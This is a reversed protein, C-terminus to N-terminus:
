GFIFKEAKERFRTAEAVFEEAAQVLRRANSTNFEIQGEPGPGIVRSYVAAHAFAVVSYRAQQVAMYALRLRKDRSLIARISTPTTDVLDPRLLQNRFSEFKAEDVNVKDAGSVAPVLFDALNSCVIIDSDLADFLPRFMALYYDRRSKTRDLRRASWANVLAISLAFTGGIIAGALTAAATVAGIQGPTLSTLDIQV